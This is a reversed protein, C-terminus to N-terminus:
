IDDLGLDPYLEKACEPCLSHTFYAESHTSIYAEIQNWYGQNDRVKKFATCIPLLGSLKKIRKMAAALQQLEINRKELVDELNANMERTKNRELTLLHSLYFYQRDAREEMYCIITLMLNIGFLYSIYAFLAQNTQGGWLCQVLCYAGFVIWGAIAAFLFPLHIFVYGFILCAVVSLFYIFHLGTPAFFGMAMFGAAALLVYFGLMPYFIRQYGPLYSLGIGVLFLPCVVAFRVM